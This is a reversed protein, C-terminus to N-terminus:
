LVEPFVPCANCELKYHGLQILKCPSSFLAKKMCYVHCADIIADEMLLKWHSTNEYMTM